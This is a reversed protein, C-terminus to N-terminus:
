LGDRFPYTILEVAHSVKYIYSSYAQNELLYEPKNRFFFDGESSCRGRSADSLTM